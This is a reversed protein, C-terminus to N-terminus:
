RFLVESHLQRLSLGFSGVSIQAHIKIVTFASWDTILTLNSDITTAAEIDALVRDHNDSVTSSDKGVSIAARMAAYSELPLWVSKKIYFFLKDLTGGVAREKGNLLAFAYSAGAGAFFQLLNLQRNFLTHNV